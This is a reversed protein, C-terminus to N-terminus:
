PDLGPDLGLEPGSQIRCKEGCWLVKSKTPKRGKLKQWCDVAHIM